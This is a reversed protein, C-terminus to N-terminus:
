IGQSLEYTVGYPGTSTWWAMKHLTIKLLRICVLNGSPKFYLACAFSLLTKGRSQRSEEGERFKCCSDRPQKNQAM